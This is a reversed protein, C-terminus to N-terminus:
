AVSRWTDRSRIRNVAAKTLGFERGVVSAVRPDARILRVDDSTVKSNPCADGALGPTFLRGKRSCDAMNDSRTGAFLHAPNVCSRVDCRHCIDIDRPPRETGTAIMYALRHAAITAGQYRVAGYGNSRVALQWLWCGNDDVVTREQFYGITHPTNQRKRPVARAM